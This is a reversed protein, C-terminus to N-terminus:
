FIGYFPPANTLKFDLVLFLM